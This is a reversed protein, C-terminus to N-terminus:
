ASLTRRGEVAQLKKEIRAEKGINHIRESPPLPVESQQRWFGYLSYLQENSNLCFFNLYANHYSRVM